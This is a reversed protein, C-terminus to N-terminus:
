VRFQDIWVPDTHDRGDVIMMSGLELCPLLAKNWWDQCLPIRLVCRYMGFLEQRCVQARLRQTGWPAPQRFVPCRLHVFRWLSVTSGNVVISTVILLHAFCHDFFLFLCICVVDRSYVGDEQWGGDIQIVRAVAGSCSICDVEWWDRVTMRLLPHDEGPEDGDTQTTFLFRLMIESHVKGVLGWWPLLAPILATLSDAHLVGTATPQVQSTSSDIYISLGRRAWRCKDQCYTCFDGLGLFQYIYECLQSM